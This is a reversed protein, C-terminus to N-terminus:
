NKLDGQSLYVKIKNSEWFSLMEFNNNLLNIYKDLTGPDMHAIGFYDEKPIVVWIRNYLRRTESLNSATLVNVKVNKEKFIQSVYMEMLGTPWDVPVTLGDGPLWNDEINNLAGRYDPTKSDFLIQKNMYFGNGVILVTMICIIIIGISKAGSKKILSLGYAFVMSVLPVLWILHRFNFYFRGITKYMTMFFALQYLGAVFFSSITLAFFEYNDSRLKRLLYIFYAVYGGLIFWGKNIPSSFLLTMNGKIIKPLYSSSLYFTNSWPMDSWFTNNLISVGLIPLVPIVVFNCIIMAKLFNLYRFKMVGRNNKLSILGMTLFQALVICLTIYHTFFAIISISCYQWVHKKNGLIFTQWFFYQSLMVLFLFLIYVEARRSYFLFLGHMNLLIFAAFATRRDKFVNLSFYFVVVACAVACCVSSLRFVLPWQEFDIFMMLFRLLLPHLPQHAFRLLSDLACAIHSPFRCFVIIEFSEMIDINEKALWAVKPLLFFLTM